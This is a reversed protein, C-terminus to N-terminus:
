KISSSAVIKIGLRHAISMELHVGKSAEWDPMYALTDCECLSRIDARLCEEWSLSHDTNIEAPNIVAHGLVRLRAAEARFASFNFDPLGSMPGSLYIMGRSPMLPAFTLAEHPDDFMM